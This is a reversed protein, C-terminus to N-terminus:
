QAYRRYEEEFDSFVEDEPTPLAIGLETSADAQVQNLFETFAETSLTSTHGGVRVMQGTAVDTIDRPLFRLCYWDHIDQIPQGTEQSICAFWMWMLHNQAVSRKKKKEKVTVEYRGNKLYRVSRDLWAHLDGLNSVAGNTKYFETQKM